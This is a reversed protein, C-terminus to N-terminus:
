VNNTRTNWAKIALEKTPCEGTCGVCENCNVWYPYYEDGDDRLEATSGCFPCPKLEQDMDEM